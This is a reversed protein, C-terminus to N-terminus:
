IKMKNLNINKLNEISPSNPRMQPKRRISIIKNNLIEKLLKINKERENHKQKLNKSNMKRISNKLLVM